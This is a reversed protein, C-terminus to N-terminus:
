DANEKREKWFTTWPTFSIWPETAPSPIQFMGPILSMYQKLSRHAATLLKHSRHASPASCASEPRPHLIKVENYEQLYWWHLTCRAFVWQRHTHTHWAFIEFSADGTTERIKSWASKNQEQGKWRSNFCTSDLQFQFRKVTLWGNTNYHWILIYKWEPLSCFRQLVLM